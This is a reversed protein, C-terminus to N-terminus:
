AGARIMAGHSCCCNFREAPLEEMTTFVSGREGDNLSRDIAPYLVSEEKRNHLSLANLLLQEEEDSEASQVRVKDHIAELYKGILRHEARMVDTPGNEVLGTKREFLPFLIDEEWIIHRQLGAKFEKFYEKAKPYNSRKLLQFQKFLEDLRDHDVEYFHTITEHNM